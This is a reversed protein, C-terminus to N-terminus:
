GDAIRPLARRLDAVFAARVAEDYPTGTGAGWVPRPWAADDRSRAIVHVHLQRVANGLAAVNLKHPALLDRLAAAAARVEAMLTGYGAEDLDILEVLGARRPVLILWPFRSDNMLLVRSLPLDGVLTTDQALQPDIAFDTM